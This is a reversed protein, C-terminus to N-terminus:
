PGFIPGYHGGNSSNLKFKSNIYTTEVPEIMIDSRYGLFRFSMIGNHM